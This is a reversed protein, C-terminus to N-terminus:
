KAAMALIGARGARVGIASTHQAAFDALDLLWDRRLQRGIGLLPRPPPTAGGLHQPARGIGMHLRGAHPVNTGFSASRRGERQAYESHSKRVMSPVLRERGREWRNLDGTSRGVRRGFISGKIAAYQQEAATYDPWPTETSAGQTRFMLARSIRWSAGFGQRRMGAGSWLSIIRGTATRSRDFRKVGQVAAEFADAVGPLNSAVTLRM